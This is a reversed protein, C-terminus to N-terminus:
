TGSYVALMRTVMQDVTFEQLYRRHAARGLEASLGRNTSLEILLRALDAADSPTFLLGNVGDDIMEPLGGISSAVIPRSLAMAELAAYPFPEEWTSPIVVVDMASMADAVDAIQGFFTVSASARARLATEEPGHGFICTRIGPALAAADLLVQIGKEPVLRGFSGVAFEGAAIGLEKRTAARSSKKAPTPTGAKAVIMQRQPVGSELLVREVARSVPVIRDWLRSYVRAKTPNWRTAVHRTMVKFPQRTMRAAYAPLTFDPSFHVHVVDYRVARFLRLYGAFGVLDFKRRMGIEVTNPARESLPSIRPCTVTVQHGRAVLGHSLYSVYREIGGWEYLSSAIQLVNLSPQGSAV